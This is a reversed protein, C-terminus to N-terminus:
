VFHNLIENQRKLADCSQYEFIQNTSILQSYARHFVVGPLFYWVTWSSSVSSTQITKSNRDRHIKANASFKREGQTWYPALHCFKRSNARTTDNMSGRWVSVTYPMFYYIHARLMYKSVPKKVDDDDNATGISNDVRLHPVKRSVKEGNLKWLM